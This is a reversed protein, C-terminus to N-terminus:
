RYGSAVNYLDRGTVSRVADYSMISGSYPPAHSLGLSHGFEHAMVFRGSYINIPALRVQSSGFSPVRAAVQGGCVLSNLNNWERRTMKVTQWDGGSRVATLSLESRYAGGEYVGSAGSWAANVDGAIRAAGPGSVTLGGRIVTVGNEDVVSINDQWDPNAAEMGWRAGAPNGPSAKCEMCEGGGSAVEGFARAFAATV